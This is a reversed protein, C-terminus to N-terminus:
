RSRRADFSVGLVFFACMLATGIAAVAADGFTGNRALTIVAGLAIVTYAAIKWDDGIVFDYWFAGFAKLFKV